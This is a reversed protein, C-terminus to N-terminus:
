FENQSRLYRPRRIVFNVTGSTVKGELRNDLVERALKVLGDIDRRIHDGKGRLSAQADLSKVVM